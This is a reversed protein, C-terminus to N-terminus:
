SSGGEPSNPKDSSRVKKVTSCSEFVTLLESLGLEGSPPDLELLLVRRLRLLRRGYLVVQCSSPTTESDWRAPVPPRSRLEGWIVLMTLEM